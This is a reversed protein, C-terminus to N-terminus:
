TVKREGQALAPPARPDPAGAGTFILRESHGVPVAEVIVPSSLPGSRFPCAKELFARAAPPVAM